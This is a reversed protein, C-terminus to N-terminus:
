GGGIDSFLDDVTQRAFDEPSLTEQKMEAEQQAQSWLLKLNEDTDPPLDLQARLTKKWDTGGFNRSIVEALRAANAAPLQGITDLIYNELLVFHPNHEYRDPISSDLLGM